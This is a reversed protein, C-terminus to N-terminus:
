QGGAMGSAAGGIAEDAGHGSAAIACSPAGVFLGCRVDETLAAISSFEVRLGEGDCLTVASRRVAQWVGVHSCRLRGSLMSSAAIRFLRGQRARLESVTLTYSSGHLNTHLKVCVTTDPRAVIPDISARCMCCMTSYM